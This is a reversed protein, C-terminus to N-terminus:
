EESKSRKATRNGRKAPRYENESRSLPAKKVVNACQPVFGRPVKRELNPMRRPENARRKADPDSRVRQEQKKREEIERRRNNGSPTLFDPLAAGETSGRFLPALSSEVNLARERRDPIAELTHLPLPRSVPVRYRSVPGCSPGHAVKKAYPDNRMMEHAPPHKGHAAGERTPKEPMPLLFRRPIATMLTEEGTHGAASGSSVTEASM